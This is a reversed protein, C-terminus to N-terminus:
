CDSPAAPGVYDKSRIFPRPNNLTRSIRSYLLDPSFPKAILEHVGSARAATVVWHAALGSLMIIPVEPYAIDTDRRVMRTFEFGSLLPLDQAVLIFQIQCNPARLLKFAEAPDDAEIIDNIHHIRLAHKTLNREYRLPDVILFTLTTPDLKVTPETVVDTASDESPLPPKTTHLISMTKMEIGNHSKAIIVM